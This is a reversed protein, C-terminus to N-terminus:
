VEVSNEEPSEQKSNGSTSNSDVGRVNNEGVAPLHSTATDRSNSRTFSGTSYISRQPGHSSITHNSSSTVLSTTLLDENVNSSWLSTMHDELLGTEGSERLLGARTKGSCRGCCCFSVVAEQAIKNSLILYIGHMAGMSGTLLLRMYTWTKGYWWCQIESSQQCCRTPTPSGMSIGWARALALPTMIAVLLGPYAIVRLIGLLIRRELESSNEQSFWQCVARSYHYCCGLFVFFLIATCVLEPAFQFIVHLVAVHDSITCRRSPTYVIGIIALGILDYAAAIITAVYYVKLRGRSASTIEFVSIRRRVSSALVFLEASLFVAFLHHPTSLIELTQSIYCLGQSEIKMLLAGVAFGCETFLIWYILQMLIESLHRPPARQCLFARPFRRLAVICTFTVLASLANATIITVDLRNKEVMKRHWLNPVAASCMASSANM